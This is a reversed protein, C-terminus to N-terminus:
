CAALEEAFLKENQLLMAWWREGLDRVPDLKLLTMLARIATAADALAEQVNTRTGDHYFHELDNRIARIREVPAWDFALGFHRFRKKVEDFAVTKRGEPKLELRGAVMEPRVVRILIGPSDAPSLEYLKGKALLLIGAYVNRVASTMRADDDAD